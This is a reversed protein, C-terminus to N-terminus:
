SVITDDSVFRWDTGDAYAARQGRDTIRVQMGTVASASPLTGFTYAGLRFGYVVNINADHFNYGLGFGPTWGNAVAAGPVGGAAMFSGNSGDILTYGGSSWVSMGGSGGQVQIGANATLLNAVYLAGLSVGQWAGGNQQFSVNGGYMVIQADSGANGLKIAATNLLTINGSSDLSLVDTGGTNSYLQYKGTTVYNWWSGGTDRSNLLLGAASGSVQVMGPLSGLVINGGCQLTGGVNTLLGSPVNVSGDSPNFVLWNTGNAYLNMKNDNGVYVQAYDYTGDAKALYLSQNNPVRVGSGCNTYGTIAVNAGLRLGGSQSGFLLDGGFDGFAGIATGVQFALYGTDGYFSGAEGSADNIRLRKNLLKLDGNIDLRNNSPTLQPHTGDASGQRIQAGRSTLLIESNNLGIIQFEGGFGKFYGRDQSGDNLTIQGTNITLSSLTPNLDPLSLLTKVAAANAASLISKGISSADVLASNPVGLSM